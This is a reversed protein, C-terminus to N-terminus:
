AVELALNGKATCNKCKYITNKDKDVDIKWDHLIFKKSKCEIGHVKEFTNALQPLYSPKMISAAFKGIIACNQCSFTYQNKKSLDINWRHNLVGQKVNCYSTYFDNLQDQLGELGKM